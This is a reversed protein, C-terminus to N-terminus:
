EPPQGGMRATIAAAVDRLTESTKPEDPGTVQGLM